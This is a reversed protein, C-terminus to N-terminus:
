PQFSLLPSANRASSCDIENLQNERVTDLACVCVCVCVCVCESVCACVCV